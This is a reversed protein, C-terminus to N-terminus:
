HKRRPRRERKRCFCRSYARGCGFPAYRRFRGAKSSREARNKAYEKNNKSVIDAVSHAEVGRLRLPLDLVDLTKAALDDTANDCKSDGYGKRHQQREVENFRM